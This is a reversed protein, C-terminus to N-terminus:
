LLVPDHRRALLEDVVLCGLLAVALVPIEILWWGLGYPTVFDIM